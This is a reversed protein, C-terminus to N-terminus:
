WVIVTASGANLVVPHDAEAFLDVQSMVVPIHFKNRKNLTTRIGRHMCYMPVFWHQETVM